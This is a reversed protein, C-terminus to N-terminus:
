WAASLLLQYICTGTTIWLADAVVDAYIILASMNHGGTTYLRGISVYQSVSSLQIQVLYHVTDTM